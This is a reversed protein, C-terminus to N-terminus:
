AISPNKYLKNKTGMARHILQVFIWVNGLKLSRM